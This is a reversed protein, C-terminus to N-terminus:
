ARWSKLVEYRSGRPLTVSRMLAFGDIKWRIPELAPMAEPERADRLLTVHSAFGKPDIGIQSRILADRLEAALAGLEPPVASAGAWVIRNHKWYGPRDLVLSAACPSVEAAAREVEAVRADEVSGLFALTAHLNETHTPRGGCVAHLERSWRALQARVEEDPWLAFFLRV